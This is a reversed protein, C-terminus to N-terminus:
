NKIIESQMSSVRIYYTGSQFDSLDLLVSQKGSVVQELFIQGLSNIVSIHDSNGSLGTVVMLDSVPNPFVSIFQQQKEEVSISGWDNTNEVMFWQNVKGVFGIDDDDDNDMDVAFIAPSLPTDGVPCYFPQVTGPIELYSLSDQGANYWLFEVWNGGNLNAALISSPIFGAQVTDIPNPNGNEFAMVYGPNAGNSTYTAVIDVIGDHDYDAITASTLDSYPYIPPPSYEYEFILNGNLLRYQRMPHEQNQDFRIIIRPGNIASGFTALLIQSNDGMYEVTFLDTTTYNPGYFVRFLQSNRGGILIDEQGDGDADGYTLAGMEEEFSYSEVYSFGLFGSGDYRRIDTSDNNPIPILADVLDDNGVKGLILGRPDVLGLNLQHVLEMNTDVNKWIETLGDERITFVDPLSDQSANLDAAAILIYKVTDGYATYQGQAMVSLTCACTLLLFLSRKMDTNKLNKYKCELFLIGRKFIFDIYFYFVSIYKQKKHNIIIKWAVNLFLLKM